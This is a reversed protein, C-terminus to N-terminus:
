LYLNAYCKSVEKAEEETVISSIPSEKKTILSVKNAIVEKFFEANTGTAFLKKMREMFKNFTAGEDEKICAERLAKLCEIAKSYLDGNLSNKVFREILNQMQNIADNVRDVKRDSIMKSFDQIPNISSIEKIEEDKFGM